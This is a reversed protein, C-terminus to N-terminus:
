GQALRPQQKGVATHLFLVTLLRYLSRKIRRLRNNRANVAGELADVPCTILAPSKGVKHAGQAKGGYDVCLERQRAQFRAIAMRLSIIRHVLNSVGDSAGGIAAVFTYEFCICVRPRTSVLTDTLGPAYLKLDSLICM